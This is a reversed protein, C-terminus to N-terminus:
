RVLLVSCVHRWFDERGLTKTLFDARQDATPVDMLQVTQSAVMDRIWHFKIDIHKSRQHHVPNEALQRASRNDIHVHTPFDREMGIDKLLQRIWAVEQLCFFCAVYEAEMSSVTVIPQLKSLWCVPGGAMLVIGGSTSRRTDKDSGWDSDTFAHLNLTRGSYCIAIAPHHSLYNLVRCAAKCSAYTPSKLHHTLVGVAFMIDPRTVVALYLLAGVLESYPFSEIFERQKPSSPPVDRPIYESMSPIDAYNRSGIYSKYKDLLSRVYQEQDLIIKGPEQTIRINLFEQALGMDTIKFKNSFLGKVHDLACNNDSAILIDDVFVAIVVISSFFDAIYVCHDLQSRRFGISVIFDHLHVNWNRPSQKLGYLSKLLKICHRPPINMAPHPHMYVVESLPAYIFASEVDLQHVHLKYVASIALFIRLTTYKVVPAFSESYDLGHVQKSGDVVLRSKFREVKGQKMKVKYVFHCRLYNHHGDTPYPVIEWCKRKHQLTDLELQMSAQWEAREPSKLAQTYSQPCSLHLCLLFLTSISSKRKRRGRQQPPTAFESDLNTRLELGQSLRRRKDAPTDTAIRGQSNWGPHFSSSPSPVNVPAEARRDPNLSIDQQRVMPADSPTTPARSVSDDIPPAHLDATMRAIDAIHIPTAEERTKIGDETVLRRFAVIFGKRVVVRTTEYVLGDEDDIHTTGVLFDYHSPDQPTTAVEIKLQELESFYESTPDPIVENFVVHVSVIIKNLSPVFIMYGTNEQAYGVLFGSYAKDDFDKKREAIPKLAYCKCGWIRFWKLDPASGYICEFPTMFGQSTKTPIRNLIYVACDVALWWFAIPLSSRLLM